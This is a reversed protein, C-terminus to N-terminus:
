ASLVIKHAPIQIQDDSVLTVDTFLGETVFDQLTTALNETFTKWTLCFTEHKM